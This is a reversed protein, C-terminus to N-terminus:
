GRHGHRGERFGLSCSSAGKRTAMSQARAGEVRVMMARREEAREKEATAEVDHTRVGLLCAHCAGTPKRKRREGGRRSLLLGVAPEEPVGVPGSGERRRADVAVARALQNIARRGGHESESFVLDM